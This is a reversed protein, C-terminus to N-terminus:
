KGKKALKLGDLVKMYCIRGERKHIRLHNDFREQLERPCIAANLIDKLEHRSVLLM